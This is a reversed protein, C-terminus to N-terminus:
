RARWWPQTPIRYQESQQAVYYCRGAAPLGDAFPRVCQTTVEGNKEVRPIGGAGEPEGVRAHLSPAAHWHTM